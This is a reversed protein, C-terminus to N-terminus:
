QGEGAGPGGLRLDGELPGKAEVFSNGGINLLNLVDNFNGGNGYRVM